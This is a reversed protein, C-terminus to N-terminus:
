PSLDRMQVHKRGGGSTPGGTTKPTPIAYIDLEVIDWSVSIGTDVKQLTLYRGTLPDKCKFMVPNDVEKFIHETSM